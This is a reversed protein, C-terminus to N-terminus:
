KIDMCKVSATANDLVSRRKYKKFGAILLEELTEVGAGRSPVDIIDFVEPLEDNTPYPGYMLLKVFDFFTGHVLRIVDKEVLAIVLMDFPYDLGSGVQQIILRAGERVKIGFHVEHQGYGVFKNSYSSIPVVIHAGDSYYPFVAIFGQPHVGCNLIAYILKKFDPFHFDCGDMVLERVLM